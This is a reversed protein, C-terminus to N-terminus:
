ANISRPASTEQFPSGGGEAQNLVNPEGLTHAIWTGVSRGPPVKEPWRLERFICSFEMRRVRQGAGGPCVEPQTPLLKGKKHCANCGSPFLNGIGLNWYALIIFTNCFLAKGPLDEAHSRRGPRDRGPAGRARPIPPKAGPPTDGGNRTAGPASRRAAVAGGPPPTTGGSGKQAPGRQTLRRRRLPSAQVRRHWVRTEVRLTEPGPKRITGLRNMQESAAEITRHIVPAYKILPECPGRGPHWTQAHVRRRGERRTWPVLNM